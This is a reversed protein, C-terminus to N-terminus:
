FGVITAGGNPAIVQGTVFDSEPSALFAVSYAIERPQAWRGLPVSKEVERIAEPTGSPWCCRTRAAWASAPM